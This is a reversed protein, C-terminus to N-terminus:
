FIPSRRIDGGRLKLHKLKHVQELDRGIVGTWISRGRDTKALYPRWLGTRAATDALYKELSFNM